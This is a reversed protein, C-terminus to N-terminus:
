IFISLVRRSRWWIDTGEVDVWGLWGCPDWYAWLTFRSLLVTRKLARQETKNYITLIGFNRDWSLSPHRPGSWTYDCGMSSLLGVYSVVGKFSMNISSKSHGIVSLYLYSSVHRPSVYFSWDGILPHVGNDM